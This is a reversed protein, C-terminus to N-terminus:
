ALELRIHDYQPANRLLFRKSLPEVNSGYLTIQLYYDQRPFRTSIARPELEEAPIYFHAPDRDTGYNLGNDAITFVVDLYESEDRNIDIPKGVFEPSHPKGVWHLIVPDFDPRDRMDSTQTIQTLKGECDRAVSRGRNRVRIRIWYSWPGLIPTGDPNVGRRLRSQRCFPEENGIEIDFKPRNYWGRISALFAVFLAVVVAAVTGIATLWDATIATNSFPSGMQLAMLAAWLVLLVITLGSTLEHQTPALEKIIKDMITSYERLPDKYSKSLKVHLNDKGEFSGGLSVCRDSCINSLIWNRSELGYLFFTLLFGIASAGIKLYRDPTVIYLAALISTEAPLYFSIIKFRSEVYFRHNADAIKYMELRLKEKEESPLSDL